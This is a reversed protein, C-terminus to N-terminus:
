PLTMGGIALAALMTLSLIALLSVISYMIISSKLNKAIAVKEGLRDLGSEVSVLTISLIFVIEIIYCGTAIQLYYPPIMSTINFLTTITEVSVGGMLSTEGAGATMLGQLRGLITTIMSALGIVIGALMPALFSMNSKMSSVIDALLDRLREDVKHINKLYESISMLARAAVDLGKKVSEILIKMSTRVLNSPFYIIAGVKKNFIAEQVSMGLRQINGNVRLFFDATPTGRLSEAVRGFAMEAPIRDGLRNGLQFLSSAFEKELKKTNERTEILNKTKLNYSIIFFSAISIPICLSLLLAILGFPGTTV